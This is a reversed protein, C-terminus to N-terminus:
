PLKPIDQLYVDEDTHNYGAQCAHLCIQEHSL